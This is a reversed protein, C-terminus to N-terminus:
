KIKGEEVLQKLARMTDEIPVQVDRRAPMYVDVCHTGLRELSGECAKRVQPHVGWSSTPTEFSRRM